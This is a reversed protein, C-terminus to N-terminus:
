LKEVVKFPFEGIEKSSEENRYNASNIIFIENNVLGWKNKFNITGLLKTESYKLTTRQLSRNRGRWTIPTKYKSNQREFRRDM